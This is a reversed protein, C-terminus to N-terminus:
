SGFGMQGLITAIDDESAGVPIRVVVKQPPFPSTTPANQDSKSAFVDAIIQALMQEATQDVEPSLEENTAEDVEAQAMEQFAEERAADREITDFVLRGVLAPTVFDNELASAIIAPLAMKPIAVSSVCRKDDYRTAFMNGEDDFTVSLGNEDTGATFATIGDVFDIDQDENTDNM